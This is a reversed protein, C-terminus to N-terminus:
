PTVLVWKGANSLSSAYTSENLRFTTAGTVTVVYDGDYLGTGSIRVTAGTSLGHPYKTTVLVAVSVDSFTLTASKGTFTFTGVGCTVHFGHLLGAAQGALAFSGTGAAIKRDAKLGAPQGTFTFTGAEATIRSGPLDFAADQGTLTFTGVAASLNRSAKLGASQGTFTFSGAAISLMRGSKLGASQGSLAFSGASAALQRGVKLGATQGSLTFAGAAAVTKRGVKLGASQGSLTFTGAAATLTSGSSPLSGFNDYSAPTGSGYLASIEATSLSKAWAGMEDFSGDFFSDPTAASSGFLWRNNAANPQRSTSGTAESGGNLYIEYDTASRWVLTAMYWTGTSLSTTGTIFVFNGASDSAYFQLKNADTIATGWAYNNTGSTGGCTLNQNISSTAPKVWVNVSLPLSTAIAASLSFYQSSSRAPTRADNLAGSGSGISGGNQAMDNTAHADVLSGSSEDCKWYSILDTLLSM